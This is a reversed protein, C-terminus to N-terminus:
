FSEEPSLTLTLPYKHLADKFTNDIAGKIDVSARPPVIM